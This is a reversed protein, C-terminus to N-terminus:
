KVISAYIESEKAMADYEEQSIWGTELNSKMVDFTAEKAHGPAAPSTENIRMVDQTYTDYDAIIEEKTEAITQTQADYADVTELVQLYTGGSNEYVGMNSNMIYYYNGETNYGGGMGPQYLLFLYEQGPFLVPLINSVYEIDDAPTGIVRVTVTEAEAEGRLVDSLEVYYDTAELVRGGDFAPKIQLDKKDIIRGKVILDSAETMEERSMAATLAHSYGVVREEQQGTRKKSNTHNILVLVTILCTLLLPLGILLKKVKGM